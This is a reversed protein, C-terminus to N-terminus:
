QPAHLLGHVPPLFQWDPTQVQGVVSGSSQLPTQTSVWFSGIFQPAQPVAHVPLAQGGGSQLDPIHVFHPPGPMHSQLPVHTSRCVSSFLQPVQPLTQVIYSTQLAPVHTLEGGADIVTVQGEVESGAPVAM